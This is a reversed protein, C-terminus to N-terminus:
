EVATRHLEICASCTCHGGCIPCSMGYKDLDKYFDEIYERYVVPGLSLVSDEAPIDGGPYIWLETLIYKAKRECMLKYCEEFMRHSIGHGRYEERVVVADGTYIIDDGVIAELREKLDPHPYTFDLGKAMSAFGAIEDGDMAKIGTYDCEAYKRSLELEVYTGDNLYKKYLETMREYDNKNIYSYEIM